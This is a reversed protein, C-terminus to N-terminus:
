MQLDMQSDVRLLPRVRAVLARSVEHRFFVQDHVLSGVTPVVGVRAPDAPRSESLGRCSLLVLLSMFFPLLILTM